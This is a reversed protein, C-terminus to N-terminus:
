KLTFIALDSQLQSALKRIRVSHEQSTDALELTTIASHQLDEANRSIQTSAVSQEETAVAVNNIGTEVNQISQYIKNLLSNAHNAQQVSNDVQNRGNEMDNVASRSNNQLTEVVARIEETSHQTRQALVRVEDAVVAFGRGQEGARAAEIAANLALLNTQEAINSIVTVVDGINKSSVEVNQITQSAKSFASSLASVTSEVQQVATNGEATLKRAEISEESVQNSNQAVDQISAAIQTIASSVQSSADQSHNASVRLDHNASSIGETSKLLEQSSQLITQVLSILNDRMRISDNQLLDIENQSDADKTHKFRFSLNGQGLQNLAHSIDKLPALASRIFAWLVTSLLAAAIACVGMIAWIIGSIEEQYEDNYSKLTVVWNWGKVHQYVAKSSRATDGKGQIQLAYSVIGSNDQYMKKFTNTLEPFETYLNKGVLNPHILLNAENRGTDTVYIYGSKGFTMGNITNASSEIIDAYPVLLEILVNPLHPVSAYHSLYQKNQVQSPGVQPAKSQLAKAADPLTVLSGAATQGAQDEISTIARVLGDSTKLILSADVHAAQAFNTLFNPQDTIGQNLVNQGNLFVTPVTRNNLTTTLAEDITLTKLQSALLLSLRDATTNIHQYQAELQEAVLSAEKQQHSSVITNIQSSFLREIIFIVFIFVVTVSLLTGLSLQKPLSTKKFASIM